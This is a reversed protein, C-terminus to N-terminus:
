YVGHITNLQNRIDNIQSETLSPSQGLIIIEAIQGNFGAGGIRTDVSFEKDDPLQFIMIYHTDPVWLLPASQTSSFSPTFNGGNIKLKQNPTMLISKDDGTATFTINKDDDKLLIHSTSGLSNSANNVTKMVFILYKTAIKKSFKLFKSGTFKMYNTNKSGFGSQELPGNYTIEGNTTTSTTTLHNTKGSIDNLGTVCQVLDGGANCATVAYDKGVLHYRGQFSSYYVYDKEDFPVTLDASNGSLDKINGGNLDIAAGVSIGDLDLLSNDGDLTLRFKLTTTQDGSFYSAYRTDGGINLTLRPKTAGSVDVKKSFVLSYEIINGPRFYRATTTNSINISNASNVKPTAADVIILNPTTSFKLFPDNGAGDKISSGDPIILPSSIEIGDLDTEGSVITYRFILDVSGSGSVYNAKKDSVGITLPIYPLGGATNVTVAESFKVTFNLDSGIKYTGDKPRTVSIIRPSVGDVLVKSLNPVTFSLEANNGPNDIIGAQNLDISSAITIGDIDFDGAEVIYRFVWLTETSIPAPVFVAFKSTSGITIAIRPLPGGLTVNVTESWRVKIDIFDGLTYTDNAPPILATIKPAIADILVKTLDPPNIQLHSDNGASDKISIGPGLFLASQLAIGEEDWLDKEIQYTFTISNSSRLTMLASVTTTGIILKLYPTGTITIPENWTLTFSLPAGFKHTINSPVSMTPMVYPVVGDILINTLDGNAFTPNAINNAADKMLGSITGSTMIGNSDLHNTLVTYSFVSRTPTSLSSSYIANVKTSDITLELTPNTSIYIPESWNFSFNLVDGIKYVKNSPPIFSTIVPSLSDIVFGSATLSTFNLAASHNRLDVITGGNLNLPSSIEIGNLDSENALVKYKFVLSSSGSGSEYSALRPTNGVTISLTPVGTVLVVESFKVTFSLENDLVFNGSLPGTVSLIGPSTGDVLIGNTSPPSYTLIASRNSSDLISGNNLDIPGSLFIGDFDEHASTPTYRFTLIKSGNSSQYNAYALTDGVLISLRPMNTVAVNSNFTLTFDLNQNELYIGNLPKGVLQVYPGTASDIFIGSTSAVSTLVLSADQIGSLNKITGNDLVIPSLINIGDNDVQNSGVTYRFKLATTETGGVYRALVIGTNLRIQLSPYGSVKVKENYTVTFEIQQGLSYTGNAPVPATVAVSVVSPQVVNILINNSDTSYVYPYISNGAPDTITRSTANLNLPPNISFGDSDLDTSQLLRSFTLASSGSGSLYNVPVAGSSLITNFSPTGTVIVEESFALSYNLYQNTVYKGASPPIVDLLFPVIGDVKIISLPEILDKTSCLPDPNSMLCSPDSAPRIMKEPYAVHAPFSLSTPFNELKGANSTYTLSGGNLEISPYFAIGNKDLDSSTVTYRFLLTSANDSPTLYFRRTFAGIQAKIYPRGSVKIPLTFLLNVDITDGLKRWGGSPMGITLIPDPFTLISAQNSSTVQESVHCSELLILTLLLLLQKM